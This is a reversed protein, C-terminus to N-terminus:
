RSGPLGEALIRAQIDKIEAEAEAKKAAEPNTMRFHKDLVGEVEQPSYRDLLLDADSLSKCLGTAVLRARVTSLYEEISMRSEDLSAAAASQDDKVADTGLTSLTILVGKVYKGNRFSGWILKSILDIDCWSPSVQCLELLRNTLNRIYLDDQYLASFEAATQPPSGSQDLARALTEKIDQFEVIRGVACGKIHRPVFNVDPIVVRDWDVNILAM